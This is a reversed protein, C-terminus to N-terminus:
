SSALTIEEAFCLVLIATEFCALGNSRRFIVRKDLERVFFLTLDHVLFVWSGLWSTTSM